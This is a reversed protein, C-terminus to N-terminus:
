RADEDWFRRLFAGLRRFGLREVTSPFYAVFLATLGLVGLGTFLGLAAAAGYGIRPGYRALVFAVWAAAPGYGMIATM